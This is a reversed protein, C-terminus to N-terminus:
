KGALHLAAPGQDGERDNPTLHDTIRLSQKRQLKWSEVRQGDVVNLIYLFDGLRAQCVSLINMLGHDHTNEM